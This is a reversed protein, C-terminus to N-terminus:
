CIGNHIFRIVFDMANPCPAQSEIDKELVTIRIIEYLSLRNTKELSDLSPFLSPSTLSRFLAKPECVRSMSLGIIGM